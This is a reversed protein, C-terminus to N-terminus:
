STEKKLFVCLVHFNFGFLHVEAVDKMEITVMPCCKNLHM